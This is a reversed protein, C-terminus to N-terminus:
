VSERSTNTVFTDVNMGPELMLAIENRRYFSISAFKCGLVLYGGGLNADSLCCIM